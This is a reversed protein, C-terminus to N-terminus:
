DQEDAAEGKTNDCQQDRMARIMDHCLKMWEASDSYMMAIMEKQAHSMKSITLMAWIWTGTWGLLCIVGFVEM